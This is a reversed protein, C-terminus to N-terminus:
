EPESSTNIQEGSRTQVLHELQLNHLDWDPLEYNEIILSDISQCCIGEIEEDSCGINDTTLVDVFRPHSGLNM